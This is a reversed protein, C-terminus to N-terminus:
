DAVRGVAGLTARKVRRASREHADLRRRRLTGRGGRAKRLRVVLLDPVHGAIALTAREEVPLRLDEDIPQDIPAAM